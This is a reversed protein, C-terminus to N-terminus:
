PDFDLVMGSCLCMSLLLGFVAILYFLMALPLQREQVPEQGTFRECLGLAILGFVGPILVLPFFHGIGILVPFSGAVAFANTGLAVLGLTRATPLYRLIAYGISLLGAIFSVIMLLFIAIGLLAM